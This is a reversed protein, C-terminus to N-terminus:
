PFDLGKIKGLKRKLLHEINQSAQSKHAVVGFHIPKNFLFLFEGSPEPLQEGITAPNRSFLELMSQFADLPQNFVLRWQELPLLKNQEVVISQVVLFCLLVFSKYTM